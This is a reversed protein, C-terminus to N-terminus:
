PMVGQEEPQKGEYNVAYIIKDDDRFPLDDFSVLHQLRTPELALFREALRQLRAPQNLHSWEARLMNIADQEKVLEAELTYALRTYDRTEHKVRFLAFCTIVTMIIIIINIFRIM